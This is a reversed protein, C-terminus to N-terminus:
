NTECCTHDTEELFIYLIEDLESDLEENYDDTEENYIQFNEGKWELYLDELIDIYSIWHKGYNSTYTAIWQSITITSLLEDLESRYIVASHESAGLKKGIQIIDEKAAKRVDGSYDYSINGTYQNLFPEETPYWIYPTYNEIINFIFNSLILKIDKIGVFEGSITEYMYIYGKLYSINELFTKEVINSEVHCCSPIRRFKL